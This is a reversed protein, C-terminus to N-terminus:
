QINHIPADPAALYRWLSDLPESIGQDLDPLLDQLVSDAPEDPAHGSATLLAYLCAPAMCVVSDFKLTATIVNKVHSATRKSGARLQNILKTDVSWQLKM